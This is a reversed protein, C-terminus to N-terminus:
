VVELGGKTHLILSYTQNLKFPRAPIDHVASGFDLNNEKYSKFLEKIFNKNEPLLKSSDYISPFDNSVYLNRIDIGKKPAIKDTYIKIPFAISNNGSKIVDSDIHLYQGPLTYRKHGLSKGDSDYFRIAFIIKKLSAGGVNVDIRNLVVFRALVTQKKLHAISKELKAILEKQWDLVKKFGGKLLYIAPVAIILFKLIKMDKVYLVGFELSWVGFELSWVGFELSWVGFELSWVGFEL